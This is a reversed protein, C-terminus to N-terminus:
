TEFNRQSTVTTGRTEARTPSTRIARRREPHCHADRRSSASGEVASPIVILTAARPHPDRSQARSSLSSRPALLASREVASPIVILKAARSTRIGRSREPHCQAERRSLASGEVTSSIVILKAARSTRIGGSREPHCHAERRALIRIGRSREPHSHAERRSFASPEVASPIWVDKNM